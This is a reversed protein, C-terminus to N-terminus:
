MAAGSSHQDSFSVAHVNCTGTFTKCSLVVKVKWPAAVSHLQPLELLSGHSHAHSHGLRAGV